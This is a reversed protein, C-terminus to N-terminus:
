RTDAQESTPQEPAAEGAARLRAVVDFEHADDLLARAAHSRGRAALYTGAAGLLMGVEAAVTELRRAPDTAAVVHPLLWRWTPWTSRDRAPRDPAAAALLRVAIAAWGGDDAHEGATRDTLLGAVMPHLLLDDDTVRALGRRDLLAAHDALESAGAAALPEPLVDPHATLLALPVPAPGLWAALTLLALAAPDADALRDRALDWVAEWPVPAGPLADVVADADTDPEALVAAAPDVALPLDDLRAAIRDATEASLDPCRSRLLSVSETRTFAPVTVPCAHEQWGADSSSILVHGPGDPLYRALQRPGAADDFVLLWRNRRSLAELLAAAAREASDTATALDLAEALEALRDPVLDTDLAPVWWAIDYRDRHRHAFDLMATTTGLGEVHPHPRLWVPGGRQVAASVEERVAARDVLDAPLPPISWVPGAVAGPRRGGARRRVLVVAGAVLGVAIIGGIAVAVVPGTGGSGPPPAAPTVTAETSLPGDATDVQVAVTAPLRAPAPFTLLYRTGLAATVQDFAGIVGSPGGTVAMGGTGEAVATWFPSATEGSGVVALVAGAARMREVVTAAPEGGADPAGTYLVVLRPDTAGARLQAVALDLAADTSRAGGARVDSLARLTDAPGSPWPLAVTPPTSDAIVTSRTTPPAALVLNAAGALGVPLMPSGDASADVVFATALRDSLVPEARADQPEGNVSAGIADPPVRGDPVQVIFRAQGDATGAPVAVLPPQAAAGPAALLAPLVLLVVLLVAQGVRTKHILAAASCPPSPCSSSSSWRTPLSSSM